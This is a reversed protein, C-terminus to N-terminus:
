FMSEIPDLLAFKRNPRNQQIATMVNQVLEAMEALGREDFVGAWCEGQVSWGTQSSLDTTKELFANIDNQSALLKSYIAYDVQSAALGLPIQPEPGAKPYKRQLMGWSSDLELLTPRMDNLLALVAQQDRRADDGDDESLSLTSALARAFLRANVLSLGKLKTKGKKADGPVLGDFFADELANVIIQECASFPIANKLLSPDIFREIVRGAGARSYYRVGGTRATEMERVIVESIIGSKDDVTESLDRKTVAFGIPFDDYQLAPALMLAQRLSTEWFVKTSSDLVTIIGEATEGYATRLSSWKEQGGVPLLLTFLSPQKMSSFRFYETEITGGLTEEYVAKPDSLAALRTALATKGGGQSGVVLLRGACTMAEMVQEQKQDDEDKEFPDSSQYDYDM